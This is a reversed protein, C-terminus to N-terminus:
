HCVVTTNGDCDYTVTAVDVPPLPFCLTNPQPPCSFSVSVEYVEFTGGNICIGLAVSTVEWTVNQGHYNNGCQSKAAGIAKNEGGASVPSFSLSLMMTISLLSLLIKKM